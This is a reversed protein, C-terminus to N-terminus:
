SCCGGASTRARRLAGHNLLGPHRWDRCIFNPGITRTAVRSRVHDPAPGSPRSRGAGSSGGPSAGGVAPRRAPGAWRTRVRDGPQPDTDHERLMRRYRPRPLGRDWGAAGRGTAAALRSVAVAVLCARSAGSPSRPETIRGASASGRWQEQDPRHHRGFRRDTGSHARHQSLPTESGTDTPPPREHSHIASVRDLGRRAAGHSVFIAARGAVRAIRGDPQRYGYRHSVGRDAQFEVTTTIRGHPRGEGHKPTM